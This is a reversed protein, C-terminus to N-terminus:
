AHLEKSFFALGDLGEREIAAFSNRVVTTLSPSPCVAFLALSLPAPLLFTPLSKTKL